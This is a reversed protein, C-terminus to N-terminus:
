QKSGARREIESSSSFLRSAAVDQLPNQLLRGHLVDGVVWTQRCHSGPEFLLLVLPVDAPDTPIWPVRIVRESVRASAASADLENVLIAEELPKIVAVSALALHAFM